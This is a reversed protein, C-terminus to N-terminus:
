KKRAATTKKTTTTKKTKIGARRAVWRILIFTIALPIAIVIMMGTLAYVFDTINLFLESM